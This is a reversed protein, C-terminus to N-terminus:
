SYAAAAGALIAHPNVRNPFLRKMQEFLEDSTCCQKVANDFALIYERTARLNYVGDVGGERKHGAVVTQPKLSEIKELARLWEQRKSSTNAEGFPQHVDGYVADGAVVLDISPVHLVTTDPSDTHGTEVVIFEHGEIEFRDTELPKPLEQPEYIQGGPFFRLWKDDWKPSVLQTKMIEITAPTAIAILTPWRKKLVPLGFWHDAHGHTIYVYKLIKTPIRNEIWKILDEAQSISIPTDVLVAEHDGHILTCSIPSFASASGARKIAM